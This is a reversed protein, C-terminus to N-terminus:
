SVTGKRGVDFLRGGSFTRSAQLSLDFSSGAHTCPGDRLLTRTIRVSNHPLGGFRAAPLAELKLPLGSVVIRPGLFPIEDEQSLGPIGTWWLAHFCLSVPFTRRLCVHVVDTFKLGYLYMYTHFKHVGYVLGM